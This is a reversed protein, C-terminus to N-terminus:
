TLSKILSGYNQWDNMLKMLRHKTFFRMLQNSDIPHIEYNNYTNIISQKIENPIYDFDILVRNRQYNETIEKDEKDLFDKVGTRLISEATAPGVRNKIGPINDSKDGILVKMDLEKKPNLCTVMKEKIPDYQQIKPNALLQHLDKDSSVIICSKNNFTERILVAIIDDAESRPCELLRITTFVSKIDDKLENMVPFFKEFNVASKDRAEKRQGKYTSLHDYRWSNKSDYALIVKEPNFKNITSILTNLFLHRFFYFGSDNDEPNLFVASFVSRYIANHLDFILIPQTPVLAEQDEITFLESLSNKNM